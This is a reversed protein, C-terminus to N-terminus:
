FVFLPWPCDSSSLFSTGDSRLGTRAAVVALAVNLSHLTPFFDCIATLLTLMYVYMCIYMCITNSTCTCAHLHTHAHTRAHLHIRAHQLHTRALTQRALAPTCTRTHVSANHSKFTNRKTKIAYGHEKSETCVFVNPPAFTNAKDALRRTAHKNTQTRQHTHAYCLLLPPICMRAHLCVYAVCMRAHLCVYAFVCVCAHM